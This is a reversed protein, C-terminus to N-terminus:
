TIGTTVELDLDLKGLDLFLSDTIRSTTETLDIEYTLQTHVFCLQKYVLNTFLPPPGLGLWALAVYPHTWPVVGWAKMIPRAWSAEM